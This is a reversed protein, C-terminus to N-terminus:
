PPTVRVRVRVRVRARVRVRVRVRVLMLPLDALFFRSEPKTGKRCILSLLWLLWTSADGM